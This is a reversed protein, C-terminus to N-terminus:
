EDDESEEDAKIAMAQEVFKRSYQEPGHVVCDSEGIKDSTAKAFSKLVNDNLEGHPFEFLPQIQADKAQPLYGVLTSGYFIRWQKVEVQQGTSLSIGVHQQLSFM